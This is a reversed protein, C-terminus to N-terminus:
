EILIIPKGSGFCTNHALSIARWTCINTFGATINLKKHWMPWKGSVYFQPSRMRRSHRSRKERWRSWFFGSTLSGPMCRPVHTVCTCHYMDPDRVQPKLSFTGPMGPAHAVRLKAYRTLPGNLSCPSVISQQIVEIVEESTYIKIIRNLQLTPFSEDHITAGIGYGFDLPISRLRIIDFM